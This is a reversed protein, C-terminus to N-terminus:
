KILSMKITRKYKGAEMLLFYVGGSLNSADFNISHRGAQKVEDLVQVVKEGIVNYVSLMINSTEPLEFSIQTTPNFPNPYNSLLSFDKPNINLDDISTVGGDGLFEIVFLGNNIDSILIKGSPLYPFCGWSGRYGRVNEPDTDYQAVLVPVEPNSIDLVVYGDGYYSIHAFNDKIFLNHVTSESPMQWSQLVLNWSTEDSLDWVSIDNVNFEDTSFFYRKDESMWGSHAYIGPITPSKSILKPNQPVSIDVLAFHDAACVVMRDQWVYLDHIYNSEQYTSIQRPFEPVSIDIIHAGPETDTGVAFLLNNYVFINHATTFIDNSSLILKASSPLDSLDIIQLGENDGTGETSIYAYQDKVKIDRWISNPGDIFAVENPNENDSIDIISLGNLVGLLAYEKGDNHDYGWVDSYRLSPYPNYSSLLNTNLNIPNNQGLISTISFLLVNLTIILFKM